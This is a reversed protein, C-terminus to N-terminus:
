TRPEHRAIQRFDAALFERAPKQYSGWGTRNGSLASWFRTRGNPPSFKLAASEQEARLGARGDRASRERSANEGSM